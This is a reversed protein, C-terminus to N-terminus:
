AEVAPPHRRDQAIPGPESPSVDHVANGLDVSGGNTFDFVTNTATARLNRITLHAGNAVVGTNCNHMQFDGIYIGRRALSIDIPEIVRAVIGNLCNSCKSSKDKNAAERMQWYTFSCNKCRYTYIRM